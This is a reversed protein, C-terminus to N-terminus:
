GAALRRNGLSIARGAVPPLALGAHASRV